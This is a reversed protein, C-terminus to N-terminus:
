TFDYFLNFDFLFLILWCQHLVSFQIDFQYQIKKLAPQTARNFYSCNTFTLLLKVSLICWWTKAITILIAMKYQTICQQGVAEDDPWPTKWSSRKRVPFVRAEHKMLVDTWHRTRTRCFAYAKGSICTREDFRNSGRQSRVRLGRWSTRRRRRGSTCSRRARRTGQTLSAWGRCSGRASQRRPMEAWFPVTKGGSSRGQRWWRRWRRWPRSEPLSSTMTPGYVSRDDDTVVHHSEYHSEYHRRNAKAFTSVYSKASTQMDILSKLYEVMLWITSATSRWKLPWGTPIESQTCNSLVVSILFTIEKCENALGVSSWSM